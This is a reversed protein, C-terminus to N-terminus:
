NKGGIPDGDIERILLVEGGSRDIDRGTGDSDCTEIVLGKGLAGGIGDAGGGDKIGDDGNPGGLSEIRGVLIISCSSFKSCYM